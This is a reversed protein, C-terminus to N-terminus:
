KVVYSGHDPQNLNQHSFFVLAVRSPNKLNPTVPNTSGHWERSACELLVSGDGLDFAIGPSESSDLAYDVLVHLQGAKTNNKHVNLIATIGNPYDKKDIHSHIRFNSNLSMAAFFKNKTGLRCSTANSAEEAMLKAALPALCLVRESLVDAVHTIVEEIVPDNIKRNKLHFKKRGDVAPIHFKCVRSGIKKLTCGWTAFGGTRAGPPGNCQCHKESEAKTKLNKKSEDNHSGKKLEEKFNDTAAKRSDESIGDHGETTFNIRPIMENWVKSKLWELHKGEVAGKEIIAVVILKHKDCQDPNDKYLVTCKSQIELYCSHFECTSKMPNIKHHIKRLYLDGTLLCYGSVREMKEGLCEDSEAWGLHVYSSPNLDNKMTPKCVQCTDEVELNETVMEEESIEVEKMRIDTRSSCAEKVEQAESVKPPATATITATVEPIHPVKEPAAKATTSITTTMTKATIELVHPVEESKSIKEPAAKVRTKMKMTMTKATIEPVHHIEESKSIKEPAAKLRTKMKMTMTKATIEPVHHIEELKPVKKPTAKATTTMTTTMTKATIELVHLIEVSKSIKEPAAKVRTKMKTTMMKATIEPVHHIEELKPVKKPAAKGTTTTTTIMNATIEPVYNIEELKPVKEPAAKGTTTTTTIMNATIEPVYNIEELKPVKEPAAKATTTTTTIM